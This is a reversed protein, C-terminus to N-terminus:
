KPIVMTEADAESNATPALSDDANRRLRFGCAALIAAVIMGYGMGAAVVGIWSPARDVAHDSSLPVDPDGVSDFDISGDSVTYPLMDPVATWRWVLTNLIGFALGIVIFLVFLPRANGRGIRALTWGRDILVSAIVFGCGGAIMPASILVLLWGPQPVISDSGFAAYGVDSTWVPAGLVALGGGSGVGALAGFTSLVAILPWYSPLETRKM